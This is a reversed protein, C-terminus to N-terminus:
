SNLYFKGERWGDMLEREQCNVLQYVAVNDYYAFHYQMGKFHYRFHILVYVYTRVQM